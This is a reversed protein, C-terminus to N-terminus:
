LSVRKLRNTIISTGTCFESDWIKRCLSAKIAKQPKRNEPIDRIPFTLDLSPQGLEFIPSACLLAARYSNTLIQVRHRTREKKKPTTGTTSCSAPKHDGFSEKLSGNEEQPSKELGPFAPTARKIQEPNTRRLLSPPAGQVQALVSEAQRSRRREFRM